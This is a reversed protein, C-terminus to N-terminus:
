AKKWLKRTGDKRVSVKKAKLLDALRKGVTVASWRFHEAVDGTTTESGLYSLIEDDNVKPAATRQKKAKKAKVHNLDLEKIVLALAADSYVMARDEEPIAKYTRVVKCFADLLELEVKKLLGAKQKAYQKELELKKAEFEKHSAELQSTIDNGM